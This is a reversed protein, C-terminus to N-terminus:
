NPCCRRGSGSGRRGSGPLRPRRAMKHLEVQRQAKAIGRRCERNAASRWPRTRHTSPAAEDAVELPQQRRQDIILRQQRLHRQQRRLLTLAQQDIEVGGLDIARQLLRQVAQEFRLHPAFRVSDRQLGRLAVQGVALEILAGIAQGMVQTFEAHL